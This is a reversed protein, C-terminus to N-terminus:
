EHKGYPNGLEGHKIDPGATGVKPAKEGYAELLETRLSACFGHVAWKSACYRPIAGPFIHIKSIIYTTKGTFMTIKGTFMTIKGTLM